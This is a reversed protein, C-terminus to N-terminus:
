PLPAFVVHYHEDHRVWPKLKSFRMRQRLTSGSATAFLAPQLQNDFIVVEIRLGQREAATSLAVLHGAMAPYDIRLDKWRGEGDFEVAYGFKTFAHTPLPRSRDGADLVPVFFDAAMGNQHTKHPRFSGGSPWGTEGYVFFKDPQATALGTYAEVIADRVRAHVANRGLLAGLDSYARFNAGRSPLRKGHRLSGAGPSGVSVSPEPGEFQIAIANGYRILVLGGLLLGGAWVIWRRQKRPLAM